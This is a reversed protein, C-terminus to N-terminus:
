ARQLRDGIRALQGDLSGDVIYTGVEAVFGGLLAPDVHEDLLVERAGMVGALKARLAQREPDTLSVRTRVRARVRGLDEDAMDRYVEAIAALAPARGARAVLGIFDRVLPSLDLRSAVEVAAARRAAASVWPRSLFDRLEADRGLLDVMTQLDGAVAEVQQRERALEYLARAYPKVAGPAAKM